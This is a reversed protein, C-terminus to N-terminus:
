NKIGVISIFFPKKCITGLESNSINIKELKFNAFDYYYKLEDIINEQCQNCYYVNSIQGTKIRKLIQKTGFIIKKETIAKKIIKTYNTSIKEM